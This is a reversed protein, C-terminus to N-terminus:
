DPFKSFNEFLREHNNIANATNFIKSNAELIREEMSIRAEQNTGYQIALKIYEQSNKAVLDKIGMQSYLGATVRSRMFKGPLTIVIKGCAFAEYSSNGGSFHITDLVIDAECLSNLFDSGSLRPLFQIRHM